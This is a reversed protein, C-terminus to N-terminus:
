QFSLTKKKKKQHVDIKTKRLALLSLTISRGGVSRGRERGTKTVYMDTSTDPSKSPRSPVWPHSLSNSREIALIARAGAAGPQLIQPRKKVPDSLKRDMWTYTTSKLDARGRSNNQNTPQGRGLDSPTSWAYKYKTAFLAPELCVLFVAGRKRTQRTKDKGTHRRASPSSTIIRSTEGGIITSTPKVVTSYAQPRLFISIARWRCYQRTSRASSSPPTSDRVM